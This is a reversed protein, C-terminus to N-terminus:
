IGVIRLAGGALGCVAIVVMGLAREIIVQKAMNAEGMRRRSGSPLFPGVVAM